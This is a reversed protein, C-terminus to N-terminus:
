DGRARNQISFWWHFTIFAARRFSPAARVAPSALAIRQLLGTFVAACSVEGAHIARLVEAASPPARGPVLEVRRPIVAGTLINISRAGYDVAVLRSGAAAAV